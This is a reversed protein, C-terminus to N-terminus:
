FFATYSSVKMSVMPAEWVDLVILKPPTGDIPLGVIKANDPNLGIAWILPQAFVRQIHNEVTFAAMFVLVLTIIPWKLRRRLEELHDGLSMPVDVYDGGAM